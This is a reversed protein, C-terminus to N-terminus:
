FPAHADCGDNQISRELRGTPGFNAVNFPLYSRGSRCTAQAISNPRNPAGHNYRAKLGDFKNRRGVRFTGDLALFVTPLESEGTTVVGSHTDGDQAVICFETRRGTEDDQAVICFETAGAEITQIARRGELLYPQIYVEFIGSVSGISDDFPLVHVRNGNFYFATSAIKNLQIRGEVAAPVARDYSIVPPLTRDFRMDSLLEYLSNKFLEGRQVHAAIMANNPLLRPVAPISIRNPLARVWAREVMEGHKASSESALSGLPYFYCSLRPPKNVGNISTAHERKLIALRCTPPELLPSAVWAHRLWSCCRSM